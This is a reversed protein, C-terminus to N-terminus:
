LRLREKYVAVTMRLINSHHLGARCREANFHNDAVRVLHICAFHKARQELVWACIAMHTVERAM